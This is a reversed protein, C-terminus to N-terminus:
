GGDRMSKETYAIYNRLMGKTNSDKALALGRELYDRALVYQKKKILMLAINCFMTIDSRGEEALQQFIELAKDLQGLHVYCEGICKRCLQVMHGCEVAKRFYLIATKPDKRSSLHISAAIAYLRGDPNKELEKDCIKLYRLQRTDLDKQEVYHHIPIELEGCNSHRVSRDVTEHVAGRFHIGCRNRFLRMNPNRVYGTYEGSEKEPKDIPTWRWDNRITTYNRQILYFADRDTNCIIKRLKGFDDPAIIEDADLVIVWDKTAKSLSYNRADSFNDTWQYRYIKDTFEGAIELTSDTSGTDVIVIEDVFDRANGLCNALCMSENKVIM